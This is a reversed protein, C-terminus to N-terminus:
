KKSARSARIAARTAQVKTHHGHGTASGRWPASRRDEVAASILARRDEATQESHETYSRLHDVSRNIKDAFNRVLESHYVENPGKKSAAVLTSPDPETVNKRTLGVEAFVTHPLMSQTGFKSPTENGYDRRGHQAGYDVIAFQSRESVRDRKEQPTGEAKAFGFGLANHIAGIVQRNHEKEFPEESFLIGGTSKMFKLGADSFESPSLRFADGKYGPRKVGAETARAERTAENETHRIGYIHSRAAQQRLFSLNTSSLGGDPERVTRGISPGLRRGRGTFM